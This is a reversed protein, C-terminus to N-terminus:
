FNGFLILAIIQLFLTSAITSCQTNSTSAFIAFCIKHKRKRCKDGRIDVSHLFNSHMLCFIMKSHPNRNRRLLSEIGNIWVALRYRREVREIAFTSLLHRHVFNKRNKQIGSDKLSELPM